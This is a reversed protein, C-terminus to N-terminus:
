EVANGKANLMNYSFLIIVERPHNRYVDQTDSGAEIFHLCFFAGM